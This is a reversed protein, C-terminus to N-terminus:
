GTSRVPATSRTGTRRRRAPSRQSKTRQDKGWRAQLANIIEGMTDLDFADNPDYLRERLREATDPEMVDELFGDVIIAQEFEDNAGKAKIALQLMVGGKPRIAHLEEGDLVFVVTERIQEPTTFQMMNDDDDTV